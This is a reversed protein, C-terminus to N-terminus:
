FQETNLCMMKTTNTTTRCLQLVQAFVGFVWQIKKPPSSV